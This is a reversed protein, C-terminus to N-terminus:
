KESKQPTPTIDPKTCALKLVYPEINTTM